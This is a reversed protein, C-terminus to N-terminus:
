LIDVIRVEFFLITNGPISGRGSCGYALSSPIIMKITGGKQVLPIGIQWGVIVENVGFTVPTTTTEFVTGDLYKGTYTVSVRSTSTPFAGSGPTSVQYYLGSSHTTGAIGNSVAYATMAAQESQITKNQCGTDKICSSGNFLLFFVSLIFFTRRM